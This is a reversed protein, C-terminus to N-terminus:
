TLQEIQVFDLEKHFVLDWNQVQFFFFFLDYHFVGCMISTWTCLLWGVIGVVVSKKEFFSTNELDGGRGVGGVFGCVWFFYIFLNFFCKNPFQTGYSPVQFFLFLFLIACLNPAMAQLKFFVCVCVCM